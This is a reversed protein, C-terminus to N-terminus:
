EVRYFSGMLDDQIWYPATLDTVVVKRRHQCGDGFVVLSPNAGFLSQTLSGRM